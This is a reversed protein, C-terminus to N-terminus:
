HSGGRSVATMKNKAGHHKIGMIILYIGTLVTAIFGLIIFETLVLFISTLIIGILFAFVMMISVSKPNLIILTAFLESGVIYVILLGIAIFGLFEFISNM